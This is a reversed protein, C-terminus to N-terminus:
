MRFPNAMSESRKLCPADFRGLAGIRAGALTRADGLAPADVGQALYELREAYSDLSGAAVEYLLPKWLHSPSVDILTIKARSGRGLKNGLRTALELGGAGGGVIVIQHIANGSVALIGEISHAM